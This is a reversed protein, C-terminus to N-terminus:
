ALASWDQAQAWEELRHWRVEPYDRRLAPIDASYGVQNFWEFMKGLDQNMALLEGIDAEAYDIQHGSVRSVIEAVRAGEVEDGAIDVRRGLFRDRNELVLATFSAIDQVSIQQLGRTEPMAMSLIGQKLGPLMFPALLNEMFYAPAVITYPLNQAQIHKEVQYKSDFHPVGTERDADSVSSYVLHRVGASKAADVTAIGQRTEAETGAEFPTAMVYVADVGQAATVLSPPDNFDGAIVGIGLDKLERASPSDPNRTLGLVSHGRSKLTRAVMGGQQGTAGTVLVTLQESM